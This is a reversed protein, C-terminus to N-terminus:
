RLRDMNKSGIEPKEYECMAIVVQNWNPGTPCRNIEIDELHADEDKKISADFVHLVWAGHERHLHADIDARRQYPPVRTLDWEHDSLPKITLKM